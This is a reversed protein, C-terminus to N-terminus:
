SVVVKKEEEAVQSVEGHTVAPAKNWISVFHDYFTDMVSPMTLNLKFVTCERSALQQTVPSYFLWDDIRTTVRTPLIDYLKMQFHDELHHSTELIHEIRKWANSRIKRIGLEDLPTDSLMDERRRSFLSEPQLLLIRIRLHPKREAISTILDIYRIGGDKERDVRELLFDPRTLLMDIAKEAKEFSKFLNAEWINPYYRIYYKFRDEQQSPIGALHSISIGTAIAIYRLKDLGPEAGALYKHIQQTSIAQGGEVAHRCSSNVLRAFKAVNGKAASEDIVKQLVESFKKVPVGDILQDM